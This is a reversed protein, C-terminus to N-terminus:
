LFSAARSQQILGSTHFIRKDHIKVGCCSGANPPLRSNWAEGELLRPFEARLPRIIAVPDDLDARYARELRRLACANCPCPSGFRDYGDAFQISCDPCLHKV